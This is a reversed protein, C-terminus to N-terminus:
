RDDRHHIPMSQPQDRVRRLQDLPVHNSAVQILRVPQEVLGAAQDGARAQAPRTRTSACRSSCTSVPARTTAKAASAGVASPNNLGSYMQSSTGRHGAVWVRKGALSYSM